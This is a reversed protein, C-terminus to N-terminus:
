TAIGARGPAPAPATGPEKETAAADSGGLVGDLLVKARRESFGALFAVTAYFYIDHKASPLLEVLSSQLALYVALALLAGIWPRLGGLFRVSKRGVEYDLDFGGRKAMRTMVSLVAGVAGMGISVFLIYTPEDRPDLWGLAWGALFGGGILAALVVVGWIMGKFFVIRASNEGARGYYADVRALEDDQEKLVADRDGDSVAPADPKCDVFGLLRTSSSYIWHLAIRESADRLVESAKIAATEWRHLYSGVLPANATRWDTATHLRLVWDRRFFNTLRRRRAKETLVVGSAEYRCWYAELIRGHEAKFLKLRRRFEHEWDGDRIGAYVEEQREHHAWVLEAFSVSPDLPSDDARERGRLAEWARRWRSTRQALVHAVETM